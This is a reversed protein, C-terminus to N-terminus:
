VQDNDEFRRQLYRAPPPSNKGRADPIAFAEDRPFAAVDAAQRDLYIAYKADTELQGAIAAPRPPADAPKCHVVTGSEPWEIAQSCGSIKLSLTRANMLSKIRM